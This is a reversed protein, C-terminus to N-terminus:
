KCSFTCAGKRFGGDVAATRAGSRGLFTGSCRRSSTPYVEDVAFVNSNLGTVDGADSGVSAGKFIELIFCCGCGILCCPKGRICCGIGLRCSTTDGVLVGRLTLPPDVCFRSALESESKERNQARLFFCSGTIFGEDDLNTDLLRM